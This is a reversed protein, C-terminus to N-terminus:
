EDTKDKQYRKGNRVKQCEICYSTLQDKNRYNRYFQDSPKTQGCDRCTKSPPIPRSPDLSEKYRDNRVKQCPKCLTPVGKALVFLTTDKMEGCVPCVKEGFREWYPQRRQQRQEPTMHRRITDTAVGYSEAIEALTREPHKVTTDVAARIRRRKLEDRSEVGADHLIQFARQRSIGFHKGIETYTKGQGFLIMMQRLREESSPELASM